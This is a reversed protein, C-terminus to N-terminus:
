LDDRHLPMTMCRDGGGGRALESGEVTVVCSKYDDPHVKGNIVDIAQLVEFGALSLQEVTYLNRAYGLIKGPAFSFFNAGSHWQERQQNWPDSGGCIIPNMPMGVEDLAALIDKSESINQVKGGKIYIHITKLNSNKLIVPEYVMCKDRDLLTFVMDLHIFSEPTLPLEQVIIHKEINNSNYYDILADIGYSNSRAGMGILLVDERAILVDGGEILAKQSAIHHPINITNIGFDPHYKFIADMILTEPQRVKGAMNSILVENGITVSADRMFFFNHLPQIAY